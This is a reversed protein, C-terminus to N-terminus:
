KTVVFQPNSKPTGSPTTALVNQPALYTITQAQACVALSFTIAASALAFGLSPLSKSNTM